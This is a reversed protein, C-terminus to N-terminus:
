LFNWCPWSWHMVSHRYACSVVGREEWEGGRGREEGGRGEGGRGREKILGLMILACVM